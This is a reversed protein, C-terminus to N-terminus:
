LKDSTFTRLWDSTVRDWTDLHNSPFPYLLSDVDLYISNDDMIRRRVRCSYYKGVFPAFQDLLHAIDTFDLCSVQHGSIGHFFALAKSKSAAESPAIQWHDYKQNVKDRFIFHVFNGEAEVRELVLPVIKITSVDKVQYEM